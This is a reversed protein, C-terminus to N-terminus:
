RYYISIKLGAAYDFTGGVGIAVRVPLNRLNKYIWKEQNPQGYSLFLMDPKAATIDELLTQDSWNKRSLGIQLNPYKAQLLKATKEASDSRHNVFFVSKNEKSALEILDYFVEAGTIKEPINKYLYNPTLLIRAGSTIVQLWAELIKLWYVKFRFPRALFREAWFFLLGM